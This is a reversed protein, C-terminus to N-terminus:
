ILAKDAKKQAKDFNKEIYEIIAGAVNVQTSKEIGELGPSSNVELVVPGHNTRLLDVGAVNLKMEKAAKLALEREQRSIKIAYSKGGRHLNARFEDGQAERMMSAVVKDGIVFCRLDKGEAEKIFEQAIINAKLGRFAEIVSQAAKNTEALVVGIGQMGEVLKLVMPTGGVSDILDKPNQTAHSISTLPFPVGKRALNQLSRLKDKARTISLSGNVCYTKMMEFQRVVAVGFFSHAAGIRPIIVDYRDLTEGNYRIDSHNCSVLMDCKLYNIIDIQHGKKKGEEVLRSVSYNKETSTLVGIHLSKKKM